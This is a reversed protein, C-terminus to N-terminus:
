NLTQCFPDLADPGTYIAEITDNWDRESDDFDDGIQARSSQRLSKDFKLHRRAVRDIGAVCFGGSSTHM